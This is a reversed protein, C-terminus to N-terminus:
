DKDGGISKLGTAPNLVIQDDYDLIFREKFWFPMQRKRKLVRKLREFGEHQDGRQLSLRHCRSVHWPDELHLAFDRKERWAEFRSAGEKCIDISVKFHHCGPPMLPRVLPRRSAIKLKLECGMASSNPCHICM